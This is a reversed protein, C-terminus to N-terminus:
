ELVEVSLKGGETYTFRVKGILTTGPTEHFCTAEDDFRLGSLKHWKVFVEETHVVPPTYLKWNDGFLSNEIVHESGIEYTQPAAAREVTKVFTMFEGVHLVEVIRGTVTGQYQQGVQVM